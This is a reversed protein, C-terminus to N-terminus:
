LSGPEMHSHSDYPDKERTSMSRLVLQYVVSHLQWRLFVTFYCTRATTSLDGRTRADEEGNGQVVRWSWAFCQMM